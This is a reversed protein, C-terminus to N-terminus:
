FESVTRPYRKRENNRQTKGNGTEQKKKKKKKIGTQLVKNDSQQFVLTHELIFRFVVVGGGEGVVQKECDLM